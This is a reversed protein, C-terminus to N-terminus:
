TFLALLDNIKQLQTNKEAITNEIEQKQSLLSTKSVGWKEVRTFELNEADVVEPTDSVENILSRSINM